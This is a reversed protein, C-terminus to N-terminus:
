GSAYEEEMWQPIPAIPDRPRTGPSHMIVPTTKLPKYTLRGNYNRDVAKALMGMVNIVTKVGSDVRLRNRRLSTEFAYRLNFYDQNLSAPYNKLYDDGLDLLIEPDGWIVGDNVFRFEDMKAPPFADPTFRAVLAKNQWDGLLPDGCFTLVGKEFIMEQPPGCFITDWADLYLFFEPKERRLFELQSIQQCRFLPDWTECPLFTLDWGWYLASKRLREAGPHHPDSTM